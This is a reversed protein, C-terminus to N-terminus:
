SAVQLVYGKGWENVIETGALDQVKKRLRSIYM